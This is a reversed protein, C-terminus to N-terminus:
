PTRGDVDNPENYVADMLARRSRVAGPRSVLTQMMLFQTTTFSVPKNKWTCVHRATGIRSHSCEIVARDKKEDAGSDAVVCKLATKVRQTLVRQSFLKRIVDEAGVMLGTIEDIEDDKSSLFMVPIHSTQRLRRLIQMGDVGRLQIDLTALDPPTTRFEGLADYRDTYTVVKYDEQELALSVSTLTEPDDDVLGSIPM